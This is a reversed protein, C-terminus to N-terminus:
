LPKQGIVISPTANVVAQATVAGNGLQGFNNQGWCYVTLRDKSIACSHSGSGTGIGSAAAEAGKIGPVMNPTRLTLSTTGIQGNNNAGWCVVDSANTVGCSHAFGSSLQTFAYGGAVAVPSSSDTTNGNGFKGGNSGWCYAAGAMSLGCAYSQGGTITSFSLGGVVLSPTTKYVNGYAIREGDGLQGLGNGGWCYATGSMTVGCTSSTSAMVSKFQLGGAAVVPLDPSATNGIGFQGWDNHGWCVLANTVTIGCAHDAGATITKFTNNGGVAVPTASYSKNSGDGLTGWSNNGWCFAKGDTKLGCTFRAFSVLQVYNRDGPVRFPTALYKGDGIDTSGLRADTGNMGWCWAVGGSAIDCTHQTAATISRYKIVVVRTATASKANPSTATVTVTGRDVGTITGNNVGLPSQVTAVAVNSSTWVFPVGDIIEGAADKAVAQLSRVDYAELTDLAGVIQVSAVVRRVQVTADASKGESTASIRAIGATVATVKGTADVTAISPSASTWAVTRDTLANGNADAVAARLQGTEGADLLLTTPAIQVSAVAAPLPAQVTIVSQASKGESSVNINAQGNAVATVIGSASVTAINTASSAFALARGSLEAGNADRVVVTLQQTGGVTMTAAAPTMSVTAVPASTNGNGNGNGNNGGPQTVPATSDGGGCAIAAISAAGLLLARLSRTLTVKHATTHNSLM